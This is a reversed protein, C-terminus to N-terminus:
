ETERSLPVSDNLASKQLSLEIFTFLSDLNPFGTREGTLSSELSARWITRGGIKVPWLRLLYSFYQQDDQPNTM